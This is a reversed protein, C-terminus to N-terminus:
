CHVALLAGTHCLTVATLHRTPLKTMNQNKPISGVLTLDLRISFQLPNDQLIHLKM